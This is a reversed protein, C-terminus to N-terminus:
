DSNLEQLANAESPINVCLLYTASIEVVPGNIQIPTAFIWGCGASVVGHLHIFYIKVLLFKQVLDAVHM